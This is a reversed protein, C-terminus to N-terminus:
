KSIISKLRYSLGRLRFYIYSLYMVSIGFNDKVVQFIESSSSGSNSIGDLSHYAVIPSNEITIRLGKKKYKQNLDFDAFVKYKIDYRLHEDNKYFCGQHPLTNCVYLKTGTSPIRKKNDSTEIPFCILNDHRETNFLQQPLSLLKDGSNIFYVYLGSAQAIGKNMADYIGKDKESIWYNIESSYNKIIDITGDTSGGDIIIYETDSTLQKIVSQITDEINEIGNYVVTIISILIKDNM